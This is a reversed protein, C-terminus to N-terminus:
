IFLKTQLPYIFALLNKSIYFSLFALVLPSLDYRMRPLFRQLPTILPDILYYITQTIPNNLPVGILSMVFWIISLMMVFNTIQQGISLTAILLYNLGNMGGANLNVQGDLVAGLSRIMGPLAIEGFEILLVALIPAMPMFSRPVRYRVWEWYPATMRKVHYVIPNNPDPRLWSMLFAIINIWFYAKLGWATVKSLLIMMEFM